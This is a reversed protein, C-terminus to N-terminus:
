SLLLWVAAAGGVLLVGFILMWLAAKIIKMVIWLVVAASLAACAVVFWHPYQALSDLMGSKLPAQPRHLIIQGRDAGPEL